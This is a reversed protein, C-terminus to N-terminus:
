IHVIIHLLLQVIIITETNIRSSFHGMSKNSLLKRSYTNVITYNYVSYIDHEQTRNRHRKSPLKATLRESRTCRNWRTNTTVCKVRSVRRLAAMVTSQPQLPPPSPPLPPLSPLSLPLPPLPPSPSLSPPPPPQFRVYVSSDRHLKFQYMM